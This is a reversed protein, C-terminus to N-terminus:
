SVWLVLLDTRTEENQIESGSFGQQPEKPKQSNEEKKRDVHRAESM